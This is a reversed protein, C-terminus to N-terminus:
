DNHYEKKNNIFHVPEYFDVQSKFGNINAMGKHNFMIKNKLLKYTNNSVLINSNHFICANELRIAVEAINGLVTYNSFNHSGLIAFISKDTAIGCSIRINDQKTKIIDNIEMTAKLADLAHNNGIWYCQIINNSTKDIIGSHKLCGDIIIQFYENLKYVISNSYIEDIYTQPIKIKFYAMTIDTKQPQQVINKIFPISNPFLNIDYGFIKITNILKSQKLYVKASLMITFIFLQVLIPWVIPIWVNYFRSMFITGLAFIFIVILSFSTSIFINPIIFLFLSILFVAGFCLGLDFILPYNAFQINPMMPVVSSLMFNTNGFDLVPKLTDPSVRAFLTYLEAMKIVPKFVFLTTIFLITVLSFCIYLKYKTKNLM